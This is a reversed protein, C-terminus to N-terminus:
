KVSKIYQSLAYANTMIVGLTDSDEVFNDVLESFSCKTKSIYCIVERLAKKANESKKERKDAYTIYAQIDWTESHFIDEANYIVKSEL